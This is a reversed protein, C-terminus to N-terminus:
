GPICVQSSYQYCWAALRQLAQRVAAEAQEATSEAAQTRGPSSTSNQGRTALDLPLQPFRIALWRPTSTTDQLPHMINLKIATAECLNLFAASDM